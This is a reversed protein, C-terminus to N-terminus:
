NLLRLSFFSNADRGLCADGFWFWALVMVSVRGGSVASAGPAEIGGPAAVPESLEKDKRLSALSQGKALAM